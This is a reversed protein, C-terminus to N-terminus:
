SNDNKKSKAAAAAAADAAARAADAAAIKDLIGSLNKVNTQAESVFTKLFAEEDISKRKEDELKAIADKETTIEKTLRDVQREFKLQDAHARDRAEVAAQRADRDAQEKAEKAEKEKKRREQAAVAEQIAKERNKAELRLKEEKRDRDAKARAVERAEYGSAFNWYIAGFVILAVIPALFYVHNKKLKM